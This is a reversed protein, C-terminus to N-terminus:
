VGSLMCSRVHPRKQAQPPTRLRCLVDRSGTFTEAQAVVSFIAVAALHFFLRVVRGMGLSHIKAINYGPSAQFIACVVPLELCEVVAEKWLM